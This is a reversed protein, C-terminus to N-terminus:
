LRREKRPAMGPPLTKMLRTRTLLAQEQRTLEEFAAPDDEKTIRYQSTLYHILVGGMGALAITFVRHPFHDSSPFHPGWRHVMVICFILFGALALALTIMQPNQWSFARSATLRGHGWLWRLPRTLLVVALFLRAKM